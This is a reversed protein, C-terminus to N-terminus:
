QSGGKASRTEASDRGHVPSGKALSESSETGACSCWALDFLFGGRGCACCHVDVAINHRCLLDGSLPDLHLGYPLPDEAM